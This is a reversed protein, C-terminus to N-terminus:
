NEKWSIIKGQPKLAVVVVRREVKGSTGVSTIRFTTSGLRVRATLTSGNTLGLINSLDAPTLTHDDITGDVQDRGRRVQILLNARAAGIGPICALVEPSAYQPDITGDSDVTFDDQWNPLSVLPESGKVKAVEELSKFPGNAPHYDGEDEAGSLHKLNDPDIWDLMCDVLRQIEMLKLGKLALYNKLITLDNPDQSRLLENLNLKGSEGVIKVRYGRGQGFEAVLAPTRPTVGKNLALQLGSHALAKADLGINGEQVAGFEQEVYKALAFVAVSLVLIAWLSLLM